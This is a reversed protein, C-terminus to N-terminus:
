ITFDNEEKFDVAKKFVEALILVFCGAFFFIVFEMDTHIGTLDFDVLKFSLYQNNVFFNILYSISIIFCCWSINKLRTVNKIIFPDSNVLTKLISNLNFLINFLCLSGTTFLIGTIIIKSTSLAVHQNFFTDWILAIYMVTGIIYLLYISLSLASSMSKKGYYKM